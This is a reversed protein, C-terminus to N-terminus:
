AEAMPWLSSSATPRSVDSAQLPHILNRPVRTSSCQCRNRLEATPQSKLPLEMVDSAHFPTFPTFNSNKLRVYLPTLPIFLDVSAGTQARCSSFPPNYVHSWPLSRLLSIPWLPHCTYLHRWPICTASRSQKLSLLDESIFPPLAPPHQYRFSLLSRLGRYPCVSM